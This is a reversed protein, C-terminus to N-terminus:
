DALSVPHTLRLEGPLDVGALSRDWIPFGSCSIGAKCNCRGGRVRYVSGQRLSLELGIVTCALEITFPISAVKVGNLLVDIDPDIEWKFDHEALAVDTTSKTDERTEKACRRLEVYKSWAGAFITVVNEQLFGCLHDAVQDTLHPWHTTAMWNAFEMENDRAARVLTDSNMRAALEERSVNLFEQLTRGDVTTATVPPRSTDPATLPTTTM